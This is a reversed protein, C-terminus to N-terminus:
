PNIIVKVAKSGVNLGHDEFKVTITYYTTATVLAQYDLNFDYVQYGHIEYAQDKLIINTADEMIRISGQYLSNDTVRGSVHIVEGNRFVQNDSPGSVQVVPTTTDSFDTQHPDAQLAGKSCGSAAVILFIGIILLLNQQKMWMLSLKKREKAVAGFIM